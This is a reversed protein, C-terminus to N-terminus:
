SFFGGRKIIDNARREFTGELFLCALTFDDDVFRFLIPLIFGEDTVDARLDAERVPWSIHSPRALFFLAIAGRIGFISEQFHGERGGKLCPAELGAILVRFVSVRNWFEAHTESSVLLLASLVFGVTLESV